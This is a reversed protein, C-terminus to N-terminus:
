PGAAQYTGKQLCTLVLFFSGNRLKTGYNIARPNQLLGLGILVDHYEDKGLGMYSSLNKMDSDEVHNVHYWCAPNSDDFKISTRTM